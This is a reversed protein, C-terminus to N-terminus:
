YLREVDLEFKPSLTVTNGVGISGINALIVKEGFMKKMAMVARLGVCHMPILVEPNEARLFELKSQIQAESDDIFHMGGILAYLKNNRTVKKAELILDEISPHSCGVILVIGQEKLDIVLAQEKFNDVSVPRTIFLQEELQKAESLVVKNSYRQYADLDIKIQYRQKQKSLLEGEFLPSPLYITQNDLKKVLKMLAAAHDFHPHSIIIAKMQKLTLQFKELNNLLALDLEGVDFLYFHDNYQLVFSLGFHALFSHRLSTNEGTIFLKIFNSM